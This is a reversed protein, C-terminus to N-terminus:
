PQKVGEMLERARSLAMEARYPAMRRLAKRAEREWRHAEWLRYLRELLGLLGRLENLM